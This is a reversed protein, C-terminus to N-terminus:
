REVAVREVLEQDGAVDVGAMAAAFVEDAHHMCWVFVGVILRDVGADATRRRVRLLALHWELRIDVVTETDGVFSDNVKFVFVKARLGEFGSCVKAIEENPALVAQGAVLEGANNVVGLGVDRFYDAAAVQELGGGALDEKLAREKEGRGGVEVRSEKGVLMANAEGLAVVGEGDTGEPLLAQRGGLDELHRGPM